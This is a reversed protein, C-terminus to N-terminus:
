LNVLRAMVTKSPDRTVREVREVKAYVFHDQNSFVRDPPVVDWRMPIDSGLILVNVSDAATFDITHHLRRPRLMARM